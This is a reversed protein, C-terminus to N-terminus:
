PVREGTGLYIVEVSVRKGPYKLEAGRRLLAYIAKGPESKTKRGTRIRQIRVSGDSGVIVRDPTIMIKHAGVPICWEQRDYHGTESAIADAMGRVMEEAANRYYKEFAHDIPGDKEWVAALHGLAGPRDYINGEQRQQELWGVTVYVCRHFRMYAADDRGGRLGEVAQYLYRAPCQMYTDLEREPYSERGAVPKLVTELSYAKGSGQYRTTQIHRGLSALFKSESSNQSTYKEARSLSLYDRARSMAVFFLCEEEASHHEPHMVLNALSQPPPCRVPQRSTPMYRTAMAPLHVAKFELGKSGHITMVRVADMDAAESAVARYISDENLAEIRRVRELFRRRSSDGLAVQEGCVKLLHYIAVLKQQSVIDGADLLPRLYDSREFLWTTLLTWPSTAFGLGDIHAGLTALGAKGPASLGEIEAVRKIAAFISLRNERAWRIVAIADERSAGYQPMAAVRVLGIGGFEADLAVLSLLDRIEPREFLDGLYLLPVGLQELIGTIRALTLHTRALITQGSYPIGRARLEEIKDRIAEAEAALTPAVTIGVNGGNGRPAQWSGTMAGSGGM